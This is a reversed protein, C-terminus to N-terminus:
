RTRVEVAVAEVAPVLAAARAVRARLDAMWRVVAEVAATRDRVQATPPADGAAIAACAGLARSVRTLEAALDALARCDSPGLRLAAERRAARRALLFAHDAPTLGVGPFNFQGARVAVIEAAVAAAYGPAEREDAACGPCITDINFRSCTSGFLTSGCRACATTERMPNAM